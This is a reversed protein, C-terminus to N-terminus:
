EEAPRAAEIVNALRRLQAPAYSAPDRRADHLQQALAIWEDITRPVEVVEGLVQSALWPLYRALFRAQAEEVTRPPGAPPPAGPQVPLPRQAPATPQRSEEEGDFALSGDARTPAPPRPTAVPRGQARQVARGIRVPQDAM